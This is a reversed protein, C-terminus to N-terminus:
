AGRLVPDHPAGRSEPDRVSTWRERARAPDTMHLVFYFTNDTRCSWDHMCGTSSHWAASGVVRPGPREGVQGVARAHDGHSFRFLRM